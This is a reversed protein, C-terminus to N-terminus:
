NWPLKVIINLPYLDKVKGTLEYELYRPATTFQLPIGAIQATKQAYPISSVIDDASTLSCLHSNNVIGTAKLGSATEVEHLLEVSDQPNSILKRFRNVVYFMQYESLSIIKKSYRGLAMAGADDGGVDFIVCEENSDFVSMIEASLAPTDLTTGAQVPCIIKIGNNELFKAYDSSRFYPNVIDLDVVTVREGRNKADIALNLALNTKGSGYHGCIINIHKFM